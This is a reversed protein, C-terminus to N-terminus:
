NQRRNLMSNAQYVWLSSHCHQLIHPQVFLSGPSWSTSVVSSPHSQRSAEETEAFVRPLCHDYPFRVCAGGSPHPGRPFTIKVCVQTREMQFQLNNAAKWCKPATLHTNLLHHTMNPLSQSRWVPKSINWHFYKQSLFKPLSFFYGEINLSKVGGVEWIRSHPRQLVYKEFHRRYWPLVHAVATLGPLIKSSHRINEHIDPQRLTPEPSLRVPWSM